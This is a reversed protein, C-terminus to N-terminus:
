NKSRKSKYPVTEDLVIAEMLIEQIAEQPIDKLTHIIVGMVQSRGRAELLGNENAMENGRLFVLEVGGKKQPNIYCIWSRRFYFPVRYRIKAEMEPLSTILEHLYQTIAQEDGELDYIFDQVSSM